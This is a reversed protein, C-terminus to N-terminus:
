FQFVMLPSPNSVKFNMGTARVEVEVEDASLEDRSGQVWQLTQLLGRKGIEITKPGPEKPIKSLEESVSVWHFRGINVLGNSLAFEYDRELDTEDCRQQLNRYVEFIAECSNQELSDLELTAFAASLESRITRAMGIVLSYAPDKCQIQSARTVWLTGRSKLNAVFHLFDRLDSESIEQFFPRELDLLAIIDQDPPPEQSITCFDVRIGEKAFKTEVNQVFPGPSPGTLLTVRKSWPVNQLPRALITANLHYPSEQDLSDTEIGAFGANRLEQDWRQPCVYPEDSRNDNEGLWWGPLV